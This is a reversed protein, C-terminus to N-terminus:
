RRDGGAFRANPRRPGCGPESAGDREATAPDEGRALSLAREAARRVDDSRDGTGQTELAEIARDTGLEGLAGAASARVFANPDRALTAALLTVAEPEDGPDEGLYKAAHERVPPHPDETLRARLTGDDLADFKGLAILANRRVPGHGDALCEDLRGAADRGRIRSLAVVAEARVWGDPDDLAAVVADGGVGAIGLAELAFQRVDSDADTRAREALASVAAPDIEDTGNAARTENAARDVFALAAERRERVTGNALRRALAEADLPENGDDATPARGRASWNAYRETMTDYGYRSRRDDANPRRRVTSRTPEATPKRGIPRHPERRRDIM